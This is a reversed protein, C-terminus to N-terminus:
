NLSCTDNSVSCPSNEPNVKTTNYSEVKVTDQVDIISDTTDISDLKVININNNTADTFDYNEKENIWSTTELFSDSTDFTDIEIWKPSIKIDQETTNAAFDIRLRGDLYDLHSIVFGSENSYM